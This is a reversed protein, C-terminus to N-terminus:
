GLRERVLQNVINGDAKGKVQPMIAGMVQGMDSMDQAGVESIVEDILEELEEETLQEPLYEQLIEIEQKLEEVREEQEAKEYEVLSEKNQKVLKALVEVIEQDTLEKRQNIEQDKIAARAMRIVSLKQKDKDKMAAKMDEVLREHLSM